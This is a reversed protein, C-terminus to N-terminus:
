APEFRKWGQWLRAVARVIAIWCRWRRLLLGWRRCVDRCAKLLRRYWRGRHRQRPAVEDRNGSTITTPVGHDWQPRPLLDPFEREYEELEALSIGTIRSIEPL